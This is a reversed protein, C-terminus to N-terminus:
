IAASSLISIGGNRPKGEAIPLTVGRAQRIWSQLQSAVHRASTDGPAITIATGADIKFRGPTRQLQAPQPILSLPTNDVPGTERKPQQQACASLGVALALLLTRRM